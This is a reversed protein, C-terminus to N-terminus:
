RGGGPESQPPYECLRPLGPLCRRLHTSPSPPAAALLHVALPEPGALLQPLFIAVNRIAFSSASSASTAASRSLPATRQALVLFISLAQSSCATVRAARKGLLSSSRKAEGASQSPSTASAISGLEPLGSVVRTCSSALMSLPAARNVTHLEGDREAIRDPLSEFGREPCERARRWRNFVPRQYPTSRRTAIRTSASNSSASRAASSFSNSALPSATQATSSTRALREPLEPWDATISRALQPSRRRAVSCPTTSQTAIPTAEILPSGEAAM